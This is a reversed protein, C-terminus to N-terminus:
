CPSLRYVNNPVALFNMPVYIFTLISIMLLQGWLLNQCVQAHPWTGVGLIISMAAVFYDSIRQFSLIYGDLTIIETCSSVLGTETAAWFKSGRLYTM